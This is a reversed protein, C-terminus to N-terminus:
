KIYLIDKVAEIVKEKGPLARNLTNRFTIAAIMDDKDFM